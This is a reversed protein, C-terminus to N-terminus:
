RLQRSTPRVAQWTDYAAAAAAEGSIQRKKVYRKVRSCQFGVHSRRIKALGEADLGTTSNGAVVLEGKPPAVSICGLISLLTTKGSGSPGM